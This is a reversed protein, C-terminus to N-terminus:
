GKTRPTKKCQMKSIKHQHIKMELEDTASSSPSDLRQLMDAHKGYLKVYRIADRLPLPLPRYHHPDRKPARRLSFQEEPILIDDRRLIFDKNQQQQHFRPHFLNDFKNEFRPQSWPNRNEYRKCWSLDVLM